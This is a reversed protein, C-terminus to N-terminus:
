IYLFRISIEIRMNSIKEGKVIVCYNVSTHVNCRACLLFIYKIVILCLTMVSRLQDGGLAIASQEILKQTNHIQYKYLHNCDSTFNFM